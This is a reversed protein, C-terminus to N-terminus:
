TRPSSWVIPRPRRLRSPKLNLSSEAITKKIGLRGCSQMVKAMEANVDEKVKADSPGPPATQM